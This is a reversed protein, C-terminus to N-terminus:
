GGTKTEDRWGGGLAKYLGILAALRDIAATALSDTASLRTRETELVTQYDILGSEYRQRAITAANRAAETAVLLADARERSGAYAVLSNEVDELAALVTKEYAIESQLQVAEQARVSARTAGGDFLTQAIGATLSRVLTDTGGLTGFSVAKWGLSGSLTFSPYHGASAQGIRATEAAVRREASRVDPRQRLTEAPIALAIEDPLAPLAATAALRAHLDTPIRGLLVALRHEAKALGTELAPISAETLKLNARAQEVELTTVLGAQERWETIQLTEAQAALNSRAIDLRMQYGRLQVYNLAVEASLSVQVADLDALGRDADAEAAEAARRQGGFVDIEWSADLGANYLDSSTATGTKSRNKSVSAKASPFFGADVLDGRARVELLRARASRMDPSNRLADEVLESLLPDDLRQWWRSIDDSRSTANADAAHTWAAPVAPDRRVYDPGVACGALPILLFLIRPLRTVDLKM